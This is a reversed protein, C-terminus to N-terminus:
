VIHMFNIANYCLETPFVVVKVIGLCIAVICVTTNSCSSSQKTLTDLTPRSDNTNVVSPM